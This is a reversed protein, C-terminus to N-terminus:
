KYLESTTNLIIKEIEKENDESEQSETNDEYDISKSVECKDKVSFISLLTNSSFLQATLIFFAIFKYFNSKSM